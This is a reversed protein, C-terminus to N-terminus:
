LNFNHEKILTMQAELQLPHCKLSQFINYLM